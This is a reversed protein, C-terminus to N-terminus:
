IVSGHHNFTWLRNINFVRSCELDISKSCDIFKLGFDINLSLLDNCSSQYCVCLFLVVQIFILMTFSIEPICNIYCQTFGKNEVCKMKLSRIHTARIVICFRAVVFYQWDDQQQCVKFKSQWVAQTYNKYVNQVVHPVIDDCCKPCSLFHIEISVSFQQVSYSLVRHITRWSTCTDTIYSQFSVMSQICSACDFICLFIFFYFRIFIHKDIISGQKM